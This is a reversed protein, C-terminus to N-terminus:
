DWHQVLVKSRQRPTNIKTNIILFMYFKKLIILTRKNLGGENIFHEFIIKFIKLLQNM